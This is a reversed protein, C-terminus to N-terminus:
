VVILSNIKCLLIVYSMGSLQIKKKVEVIKKNLANLKSNHSVLPDTMNM